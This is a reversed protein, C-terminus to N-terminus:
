LLALQQSPLLTAALGTNAKTKVVRLNTAMADFLSNAVMIGAGSSHTLDAMPQRAVGYLKKAQKMLNASLEQDSTQVGTIIGQKTKHATLVIKSKKNSSGLANIFSYALSTLAAQLGAPHAMVLGCKGSITLDISCDYLKAVKNLYQATDYMTASVSVPELHLIQQGLMTQTSLVYSDILRLATDALVEAHQIAKLDGSLLALEASRAIQMLPLKLEEALSRLLRSQSENEHPASVSANM